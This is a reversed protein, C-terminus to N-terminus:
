SPSDTDMNRSKLPQEIFDLPSTLRDWGFTKQSFKKGMEEQRKDKKLACTHQVFAKLKKEPPLIDESKISKDTMSLTGFDGHGGVALVTKEGGIKIVDLLNKTSSNRVILVNLNENGFIEERVKKITNIIYGPISDGHIIKRANLGHMAINVPHIRLYAMMVRALKPNAQVIDQPNVVGNLLMILKNEEPKFKQLEDEINFGSGDPKNFFSSIKISPDNEFNEEVKKQQRAQEKELDKQAWNLFNGLMGLKINVAFPGVQVAIKDFNKVMVERKSKDEM